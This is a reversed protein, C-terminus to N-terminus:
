TLEMMMGTIIMKLIETINKTTRRQNRFLDETAILNFSAATARSELHPHHEEFRRNAAGVSNFLQEVSSASSPFTLDFRS